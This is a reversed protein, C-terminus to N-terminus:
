PKASCLVRVYAANAIAIMGCNACVHVMFEGSCTLQRQRLTHSAGHALMVDREMEGFRLGGGIARGDVPQRTLSHYAGRSRCVLENTLECLKCSYLVRRSHMKDIAMHRLKQYYCTYTCIQLRLMEGTEGNHFTETCKKNMKGLTLLIDECGKEDYLTFSTGSVFKLFTKARCL